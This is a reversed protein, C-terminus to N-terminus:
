EYGTAAPLMDAILDDQTQWRTQRERRPPRPRTSTCPALMRNSDDDARRNLMPPVCLKLQRDRQSPQPRHRPQIQMRVM